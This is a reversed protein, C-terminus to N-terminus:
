AVPQQQWEVAVVKRGAVLREPEDAMPGEGGGVLDAEEEVAIVGHDLDVGGAVRHGLHLHLEVVMDAEDRTVEDEDVSRPAAVRARRYVAHWTRSQVPRQRGGVPRRERRRSPLM